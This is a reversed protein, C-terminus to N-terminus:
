AWVTGASHGSRATSHWPWRQIARVLARSLGGSCHWYLQRRLEGRGVPRVAPRRSCRAMLCRQLLGVTSCHAACFTAAPLQKRVGPWVAWTMVAVRFSVSLHPVHLRHLHRPIPLSLSRISCCRGRSAFTRSLPPPSNPFPCSRLVTRAPLPWVFRLLLLLRALCPRFSWGTDTRGTCRVTPDCELPVLTDHCWGRGSSPAV